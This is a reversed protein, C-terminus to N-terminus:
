VLHYLFNKVFVVFTYLWSRRWDPSDGRLSAKLTLSSTETINYYHFILFLFSWNYRCSCCNRHL